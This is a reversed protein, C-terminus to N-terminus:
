LMMSESHGPTFAQSSSRRLAPVTYCCAAMRVAGACRGRLSPLSNSGSHPAAKAM